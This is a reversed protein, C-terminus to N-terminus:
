ARREALGEPSAMKKHGSKRRAAAGGNPTRRWNELLPARSAISEAM